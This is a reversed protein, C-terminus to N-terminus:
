GVFSARLSTSARERPRSWRFAMTLRHQFSFPGEIHSGQEFDGGDEDRRQGHIRRGGKCLRTFENRGNWALDNVSAMCELILPLPQSACWKGAPGDTGQLFQSRRTRAVGSAM